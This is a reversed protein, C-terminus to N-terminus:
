RVIEWRIKPNKRKRETWYLLAWDIATEVVILRKSVYVNLIM